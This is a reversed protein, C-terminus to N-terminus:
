NKFFDLISNVIYQLDKQKLNPYMPLSLIRSSIEETNQLNSQKFKIKKYFDTKHIPEFYVKTMIGSKTLFNMLETRRKSNPLM